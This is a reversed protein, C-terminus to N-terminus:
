KQGTFENVASAVDSLWKWDSKLTNKFKTTAPNAAAYTEYGPATGYFAKQGNELKLNEVADKHNDGIFLNEGHQNGNRSYNDTTQTLSYKSSWETEETVTYYGKKLGTITDTGETINGNADFSLVAYYTDKIEGNTTERRDVRFIFSQNANIKEIDTYQATIEKTIKLQGKVVNILYVGYSGGYFKENDKSLGTKNSSAMLGNNEEAVHIVGNQTTNANSEGTSDSYKKYQARLYYATQDEPTEKAIDEMTVATAFDSTKSWTLTFDSAKLANGDTGITYKKGESNQAYVGTVNNVDFLNSNEIKPVTDGWFITDEVNGIQFDMKVNVTPQDLPLPDTIGPVTIQSDPAVNTPINNGGIFEDKAKVSITKSWGHRSGSAHAITQDKWVVYINGNDDVDAIGGNALEFGEKGLNKAAQIRGATVVAGEDDLLNFRPDIVDKIYAGVIEMQNTITTTISQFIADLSEMSSTDFALGPTAMAALWDKREQKELSLGITYITTGDAKIEAATNTAEEMKQAVQAPKSGNWWLEGDTFMIVFKNMAASGALQQQAKELALDHRTNVTLSFQNVLQLLKTKNGAVSLYGNTLDYAKTDFTILSVKCEPAKAAMSNIFNSAANKLESLRNKWEYVNGKDSNTMNTWQGSSYKMWVGDIYKLPSLRDAVTYTLSQASETASYYYIQSTVLQNKQSQYDGLKQADPRTPESDGYHMSESSDLLLLIDADAQTTVESTKLSDANITIDYTRDDWSSVKATKEYNISTEIIEQQTYNKIQYIGNLKGVEVSASSVLTAQGDQDITLTWTEASATYGEPASVETLTYEGPALETFNVMGDELSTARQVETNDAKQSIVFEAGALVNNVSDTKILSFDFGNKANTVIVKANGDINIIGSASGKYGNTIQIGDAKYGDQQVVQYQPERYKEQDVGQEKVMFSTGSPIGRNSDIAANGLIIAVQGPKLIIEGNTTTQEQGATAENNGVKYKGVYPEGGVIVLMKFEEQGTSGAMKKEIVLHKMNTAACRNKFNVMYDTGITLEKSRKSTQGDAVDVDDQNVIGASEIQIQDYKNNDVAVEEVYYKTGATAIDKFQAQEGHKLKFIGDGDTMPLEDKSGDAKTLTYNQNAAVAYEGNSQELYLKFSFETDSYAGEDYNSIEKSITVSDKPLPPMNFKVKCNAAGGGRELYIMEMTHSSYDKFTGKDTFISNLYEKSPDKGNKQNYADIFAKKITTDTLKTKQDGVSKTVEVYGTSFDISGGHRDHIGGIDLVLIGDIYVWVDDDGRFEFVMPQGNIEGNKPQYFNMNVDMGFWYDTKSRGGAVSSVQGAKAGSPLKNFPLFNGYNFAGKDPSLKANYIDIRDGNLQAHNNESDYYYYGQSDKQFLGDLGKYAEVANASNTFLYEMSTGSDLVPIGGSLNRKFINQLLGQPSENTYNTNGRSYSGDVGATGTYFSFGDKFAQFNNSNIGKKYNYLNIGIGDAKSNATGIPSLDSGSDEVTSLDVRMGHYNSTNITSGSPSNTYTNARGSIDDKSYYQVKDVKYGSAAEFYFAINRDQFKRTYYGKDKGDVYVHIRMYNGSANGGSYKVSSYGTVYQSGLELPKNNAASAALTSSGGLLGKAEEEQWTFSYESFSDTFFNAKSVTNGEATEIQANEVVTPVAEANEAEEHHYLSVEANKVDEGPKAAKNFTLEVNVQGTPEIEEGDKEFRIDYTVFGSLKKGAEASKEALASELKALKNKDEVKTAKLEVGRPLIGVESLSATVTIEGDSYTYETTQDQGNWAVIFDTVKEGNFGIEQVSGITNDAFAFATLHDKMDQVVTKDQDNEDKVTTYNLAKVNMAKLKSDGTFSEPLAANKYSVKINMEGEPVFVEKDKVLEAHYAYFGDVPNGNDDAVDKLLETIDDFRAKDAKEEDTSNKTIKHDTIQRIQLETGEPLVTGEPLQVEVIMDDNEFTYLTQATVAPEETVVPEEAVVPEETVVPEEAVVPEETIVPEEVAPQEPTEDETGTSEPTEVPTTNEPETIEETTESMQEPMNEEEGVAADMTGLGIGETGTVESTQESAGEATDAALVFSGNSLITTAVMVMCLFLATLRERKKTKM